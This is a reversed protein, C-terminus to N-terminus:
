PALSLRLGAFAALGPTTFGLVEEYDQDFLNELRGFLSLQPTLRWSGSLTALTFDDLTVPVAGFMPPPFYLDKQEGNYHINLNLQGRGGGFEYRLNLMASHKPRRVEQAQRGSVADPETAELWTYAADVELGDAASASATLELGRRESEGDSNLATFVGRLPDFVFGNIEDELDQEFWTVGLRVSGEALEQDVGIEWGRSKEPDLSPNGAFAPSSASTFFGFREVFTPSKGGTGYGARLRTGAGRLPWAGTLRWNTDNGFDSNDDHRMGASVSLADALLVRYEGALALTHASLDQNPDGFPTATGRQRYNEHEHEVVASLVHRANWWAPTDVFLDSQWVLRQKKGGASETLTGADFNDNDTGTMAVSVTQRWRGGFLELRGQLRGYDQEFATELGTDAPLGTLFDPGDFENTGSVHRGAMEFALAPMPQWGAVISLTLNEYGDDEGGDRAINSGDSHLVSSGLRFDYHEGGGSLGAGGHLTGFSGGEMFGSANVGPQGRRTVISVVGALADSGWLASQPGRIIEVREIDDSLVHAFNFEGGQAPDNVEIGDILVLVQNAEAGRMRLQTQSGSVGVRSVALGPAGRLIDALMTNQRAALDDNTFLTLASGVQTTPVPTRSATVIVTEVPEGEGGTAAGSLFLFVSSLLLAFQQTARFRIHM